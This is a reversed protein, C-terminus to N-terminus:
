DDVGRRAHVGGDAQRPFIQHRRGRAGEMMFGGRCELLDAQVFFPSPLLDTVARDEGNDVLRRQVGDVQRGNLVKLCSSSRKAIRSREDEDIFGVPQLHVAEFLHPRDEIFARRGHNEDAHRTDFLAHRAERLEVGADPENMLETRQLWGLHRLQQFPTPCRGSHRQGVSGERRLDDCPQDAHGSSVETQEGPEESFFVRWGAKALRSELAQAGELSGFELRTRRNNTFEICKSRDLFTWKAVMSFDYKRAGDQRWSNVHEVRNRACEQLDVFCEQGAEELYTVQQGTVRKIRANAIGIRVIEPVIENM